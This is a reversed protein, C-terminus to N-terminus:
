RASWATREDDRPADVVRSGTGDFVMVPRSASWVPWGPDGTSAFAVWARHMEDALPQPADAGTLARAEDTDLTDFVFGLELAHCAGLGLLPTEWAFEYVHTRMPQDDAIQELPLRLLLDTAMAGLVEGLPEGQRNARYTDSAARPVRFRRRALWFVFPTIRDNTKGPVFWLRHEQTTTGVLLDIAAADGRRIGELPAVPM